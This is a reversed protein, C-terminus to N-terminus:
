SELKSFTIMLSSQTFSTKSPDLMLSYMNITNEDEKYWASPNQNISVEELRRVEALAKSDSSLKKEPLEELIFLQDLFQIRSLMVYSQASQFVKRLDVVAKSPWAITQGQFRHSTVSFAPIIPFQVLKATSSIHSNTRALSYELEKRFIPTCGPHKASLHACANRTGAGTEEKDFKIFMKEVSKDKREEIAVLEGIAGNALGDSVCVNYILMVRSGLKLHLCDLFQTDGVRGAKDIHPKFNSSSKTFHTAKIIYHPGTLETMKAVNCDVVEAVTSFIRISASDLESHGEERVRGRLITLDDNTQENLRIRNLIDAYTKYNGQRHNYTLNIVEFSNWLTDTGDGFTQHYEPCSPQQFIYRGRVPKLQFILSNSKKFKSFFTITGTAPRWTPGCSM